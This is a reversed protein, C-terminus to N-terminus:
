LRNAGDALLSRAAAGLRGKCLPAKGFGINIVHIWGSDAESVCVAPLAKDHNGPAQWRALVLIKASFGGPIRPSLRSFIYQLLFLCLRM